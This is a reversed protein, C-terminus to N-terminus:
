MVAPAFCDSSTVRRKLLASSQGGCPTPRLTSPPLSAACSGGGALRLARGAVAFCASCTVRRQCLAYRPGGRPTSRLASPPLSATCSGGGACRLARGAVHPRSHPPRRLHCAPPMACLAARLKPDPVLRVTAPKSCVIRRWRTASRQGGCSPSLLATVALSVGGSFRLARGAAHPRACPPCHCAQQVHDAALARFVAQWM